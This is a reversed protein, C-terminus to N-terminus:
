IIQKTTVLFLLDREQIFKGEYNEPKDKKVLEIAEDLTVWLLEYKEEIEDPELKQDGKSLIKGLYCYSTQKLNWESRFEIIKGIEGSVKIDSGVEEKIERQLAQINDEGKEIGGGPLKHYKFKSVFLIPVLGNEDILVARSAERIKFDNSFDGDQITKLLKM